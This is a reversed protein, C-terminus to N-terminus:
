RPRLLFFALDLFDEIPQASKTVRMQILAGEWSNILFRATQNPDLAGNVDGTSQGERLLEAIAQSWNSFREALAFRIPESSDSLESSLNGLLCGRKFGASKFWDACLTFYIRLRDLPPKTQDLLLNLDAGARYANLVEVALDEKSKFYNYFSGKPVGAAETIDQVSCGNFGQTHIVELGAEVIKDRTNPKAM